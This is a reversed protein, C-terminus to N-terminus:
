QMTDSVPLLDEYNYEPFYNKVIERKIFDVNSGEIIFKFGHLVFQIDYRKSENNKNSPLESIQIVSDGIKWFESDPSELDLFYKQDQASVNYTQLYISHWNMASFDFYRAEIGNSYNIEALVYGAFEVPIKPRHPHSKEYADVIFQSGQRIDELSMPRGIGVVGNEQPTWIPPEVYLAGNEDASLKLYPLAVPTTNTVPKAGMIMLGDVSRYSSGWCPDEMRQRGEHPWYRMLCHDGVSLASYARFSSVDNAEGGLEEPLRILIFKQFADRNKTDEPNPYYFYEMSNPKMTKLPYSLSRTVNASAVPVLCMDGSRKGGSDRCINDLMISDALVVALVAVAVVTASITVIRTKM